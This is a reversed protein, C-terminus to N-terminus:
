ADLSAKEGIEADVHRGRPKAPDSKAEDDDAVGFFSEQLKHLHHLLKHLVKRIVSDEDMSTHVENNHVITVQPTPSSDDPAQTTDVSSQVDEVRDADVHAAEVHEADLNAAEVHEADTQDTVQTTGPDAHDAIHDAFSQMKDNFIFDDAAIGEEPNEVHVGVFREADEALVLTASCLLLLTQLKGM